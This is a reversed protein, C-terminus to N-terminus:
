KVKVQGNNTDFMPIDPRDACTLGTVDFYSYSIQDSPDHASTGNDQVRTLAYQGSVDVGNVNGHTIFGSLWAQNGDVVLCDIAVHIGGDIGNRPGFQDSWQGKVNGNKDQIAVLSFNGDYGPGGAPVMDAGGVSVKHGGGNGPDVVAATQDLGAVSSMPSPSDCGMAFLGLGAIAIFGGRLTRTM